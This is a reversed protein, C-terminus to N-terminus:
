SGVREQWGMQDRLALLDDRTIVTRMTVIWDHLSPSQDRIFQVAPGIPDEGGAGPAGSQYGGYFAFYAQNLKRIQYGNQVFLERREEMYREAEEVRGEALLADVTVRTEHMAEGFGFANPDPPPPPPADPDPPPPAPPLLDPYYRAVVLRAVEQGFLNATTENIVRTEGAFDYNLGLPFAFLYHHLWEHAFVDAAFQISTTELIMAPYLAIGGLPVVLAAMDHQAFVAQELAEIEEVPMPDLNISVDFRIEDRPSAILLNPVQTFHMSIPPLLQGLTGFGAEVLVAAVQGELIAEVLAQRAALDARLTDREARLAASAAAPDEVNPDVFVRGIEGELARARALDTMYARVTQTRDAETMFPHQGFLTQGAKTALAQIEWGVYDFQNERALLAIATWTTGTPLTSYQQLFLMLTLGVAWVLLRLVIRLGRRVLRLITM